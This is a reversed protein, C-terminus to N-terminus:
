AKAPKIAVVGLHEGKANDKCTLTVKEGAKVSSMEKVAADMCKATIEKGADDKVTMTHAKADMSVVTVTMDHTTTKAAENTASAAPAPAALAVGCALVSAIALVGFKSASKM